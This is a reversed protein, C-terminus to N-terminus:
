PCCPRISRQILNPQAFAIVSAVHKEDPLTAADKSLALVEQHVPLGGVGEVSAIIPGRGAEETM